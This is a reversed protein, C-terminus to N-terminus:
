SDDFIDRDYQFDYKQTEILEGNKSYTLSTCNGMEDYTYYQEVKGESDTTTEKLLRHNQSYENVDKYDFVGDDTVLEYEILNGADDFKTTFVRGIKGKYDYAREETINEDSYHYSSVLHEGKEDVTLM